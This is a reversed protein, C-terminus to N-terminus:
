DATKIEIRAASRAEPKPATVKLVGKAMVAQIRAPDVGDPLEISRAFSGFSREVLRYDKSSEERESKKEGRITLVNGTMSIQVDKEELGPLEATIEIETDTEAIDMSPQATAAGPVGRSFSDFLRDVERQLAEFMGDHRPVARTATRAPAPATIAMVDEMSGGCSAAGANPGVAAPKAKLRIL